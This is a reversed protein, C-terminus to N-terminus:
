VADLGVKRCNLAPAMPRTRVARCCAISTTFYRDGYSNLHHSRRSARINLDRDIEHDERQARALQLDQQDPPANRGELTAPRQRTSENALALRELSGSTALEFLLGAHRVDEELLEEGEAVRVTIWTAADHGDRVVRQERSFRRREDSAGVRPRRHPARRALMQREREIVLPDEGIRQLPEHVLEFVRGGAELEQRLLERQTLQLLHVLRNQPPRHVLSVEPALHRQEADQHREVFPNAFAGPTGRLEM